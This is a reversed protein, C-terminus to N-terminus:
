MVIKFNSLEAFFIVFAYFLFNIHKNRTIVKFSGQFQNKFFCFIEHCFSVICKITRVYM